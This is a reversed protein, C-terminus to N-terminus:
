VSYITPLTLHTYSVAIHGPGFGVQMGLKMKIRGVTQGCNVFTASLCVPCVPCVVTRYCLAFREIFPRGFVVHFIYHECRSRLAVMIVLYGSIAYIEM